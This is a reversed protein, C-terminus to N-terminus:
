QGARSVSIEDIDLRAHPDTVAAGVVVRGIHRVTEQWPFANGSKRWGAQEAEADNWDWRITTQLQAWDDDMTVPGEFSWQSVDKAFLEIRGRQATKPARMWFRVVGAEGGVLKPWDGALRNLPDKAQVQAYVMQGDPREVHIYGGKKGGQPRHAISEVGQWGDVGEDFSASLVTPSVDSPPQPVKVFDAQFEPGGGVVDPLYARARLKTTSDFEIPKTYLPSADTPTTGDVTYRVAASELPTKLELALTNEFKRVESSASPPPVFQLGRFAYLCGNNLEFQLRVFRGKLIRFDQNPWKVARDTVGATIPASPEDWGPVDLVRVQLSGMSTLDATISLPEGTALLPQTVIKAVKDGSTSQYGAFRDLGLSARSLLCHRKWGVHPQDSGGYYILLKGDQEIPPGAPGYICASDGTGPKGRPIIAQGPMVRRWHVSDPSWALECDVSRDRGVNYMMVYGLYGNGYPFATLCYTQSDRAEEVTSRLVVGSNTWNLFDDSELRAVLREGLYLKTFLVYKKLRSDWFANSHTDGNRPHYGTPTQPQSWHVGDASFRVRPQGLGVDYIMKYRRSADADHEDCFVGVNPTDMAVANTDAGGFRHLGLTPREWNLGDRSTAYLLYWGQEHVPTPRDMKAIAEADHVVCKYWLKFLGADSDYHINPYLNNLSNEWPKDAPLLPNASDKEVEGLALEAGEVSAVVREDLLLHKLPDPQVIRPEASLAPWAFCCLLLIAIVARLSPNCQPMM